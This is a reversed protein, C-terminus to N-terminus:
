DESFGEFWTGKTRLQHAKDESCTSSSAEGSGCHVQAELLTLGTKLLVNRQKRNQFFRVIKYTQTM